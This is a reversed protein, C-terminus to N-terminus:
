KHSANLKQSVKKCLSSIHEIFNLEHYVKVGLLREYKSNSVTENGIKIQFSKKANNILLRYKDRNEKMRNDKFWQLLTQNYFCKM